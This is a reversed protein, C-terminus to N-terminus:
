DDVETPAPATVAGTFTCIEGSTFAGSIDAMFVGPSVTGTFTGNGQLSGGTVLIVFTFSGGITGTSDVTGNLTLTKTGEVDTVV